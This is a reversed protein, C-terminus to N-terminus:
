IKFYILVQPPSIDSDLIPLITFGLHGKQASMLQEFRCVATQKFVMFGASEVRLPAQAPVFRISKLARCLASDFLFVRDDDRLYRLLARGRQAPSQVCVPFSDCGDMKKDKGDGVDEMSDAAAEIDKAVRITSTKDLDSQMGLDTLMDHWQNSRMSPPVFYEAVDPGQLAELLADNKWSFMTDPSRHPATDLIVEVGTGDTSSMAWAPIFPVRKLLEVLEADDSYNSWQESLSRMIRVRAAGQMRGLSALTFKRVVLGPTLEEAGILQYIDRLDPDNILVVPMANLNTGNDEFTDYTSELGALATDSECWYVDPGQLPALIGGERNTFLPLGKLSNVEPPSFARSRHANLFELLLTKRQAVNLKEFALLSEYELLASASDSTQYITVKMTHILSLCNLIKHGLSSAGGNQFRSREASEQIAQPPGELLSGDLQPFRLVQLVQELELSSFVDLPVSNNIVTPLTGTPVNVASNSDIGDEEQTISPPLSTTPLSFSASTEVDDTNDVIMDKKTEPGSANNECEAYKEMSDYEYLSSIKSIIAEGDRVILSKLRGCERSCHMRSEEQAATLANATNLLSSAFSTSVLLQIREVGTGVVVPLLPLTSLMLLDDISASSLVERWLSYILLSSPGHTDSQLSLGSSRIGRNANNTPTWEVATCGVWTQPLFYSANDQVFCIYSILLSM